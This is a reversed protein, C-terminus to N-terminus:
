GIKKSNEQGQKYHLQQPLFMYVLDGVAYTQNRAFTRKQRIQQVSQDQTKKDLVVKKM